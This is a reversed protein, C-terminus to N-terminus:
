TPLDEFSSYIYASIEFSDHDFSIEKPNSIVDKVVLVTLLSNRKETLKRVESYLYLLIIIRAIISFLGGFM